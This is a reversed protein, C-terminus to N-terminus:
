KSDYGTRFMDVTDGSSFANRLREMQVLIEKIFMKKIEESLKKDGDLWGTDIDFDM